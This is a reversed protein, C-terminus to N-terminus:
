APQVPPFKKCQASCSPTLHCPQQHSPHCQHKRRGGACYDQPVVRICCQNMFVPRAGINKTASHFTIVRGVVCKIECEVNVRQRVFVRLFIGGREFQKFPVRFSQSDAVGHFGPSVASKKM